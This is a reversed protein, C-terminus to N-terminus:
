GRRRCLKLGMAAAYYHYRQLRERVGFGRWQVAMGKGGFGELIFRFGESDM